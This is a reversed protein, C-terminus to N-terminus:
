RTTLRSAGASWGSRMFACARATTGCCGQGALRAPRPVRVSPWPASRAQTEGAGVAGPWRLEQAHRHARYGAVGAHRGSGSGHEGGTVAAISLVAPDVAGSVRM